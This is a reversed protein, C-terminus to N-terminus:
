CSLFFQGHRLLLSCERSRKHGQYNNLLARVGCLGAAFVFNAKAPELMAEHLGDICMACLV